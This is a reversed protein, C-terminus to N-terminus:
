LKHRLPRYALILNAALFDLNPAEGWNSHHLAPVSHYHVRAEPESLRCSPTFLAINLQHYFQLQRYLLPHVIVKWFGTNWYEVM